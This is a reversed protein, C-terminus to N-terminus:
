TRRFFEILHEAVAGAHTFPGGHAADAIVVLDGGTAEALKRGSAPPFALDGGNVIENVLCRVLATNEEPTDM